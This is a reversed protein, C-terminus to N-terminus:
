TGRSLWWWGTRCAARCPPWAARWPVSDGEEVALNSVFQWSDGHERLTVEKIGDAMFTDDYTLRVLNGNREGSQFTVSGRYNTDGHFHYYSDYEPLYTFGDLGVQNTEALTLGLYEELAADM